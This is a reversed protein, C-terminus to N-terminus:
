LPLLPKVAEPSPVRTDSTRPSSPLEAGRPTTATEHCAASPVPPRGAGTPLSPRDPSLECPVWSSFSSGVWVSAAMQDWCAERRWPESAPQEGVAHTIARSEFLELAFGFASM